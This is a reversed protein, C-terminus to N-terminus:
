SDTFAGQVTVPTVEHGTPEEDGGDVPAWLRWTDPDYEEEYWAFPAEQGAHLRYAYICHAQADERSTYTDLPVTGCSAAARWVTVAPGDVTLTRAAALAQTLKDAEPTDLALVLARGDALRLPAYVTGTTDDEIWTLEGSWRATVAAPDPAPKGTAAARVAAVWDPVPLPDEWRTAEHEAAACADLVAALRQERDALQRHLEAVTGQVAFLAADAIQDAVSGPVQGSYIMELRRRAAAQAEPLIEEWPQRTGTDLREREARLKEIAEQALTCNLRAKHRGHSLYGVLTDKKQHWYFRKGERDAIRDWADRQEDPVDGHWFLDRHNTERRGVAGIAECAAMWYATDPAHGEAQLQEARATLGDPCPLYEPPQPDDM